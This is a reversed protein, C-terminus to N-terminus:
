PSAELYSALARAFTPNDRLNGIAHNCPGCILGRICQGCSRKGPCCSHRHDVHLVKGPRPAELCILCVGHQKALLDSYTTPGFGYKQKLHFARQLVAHCQKCVAEVGHRGSYKKYFSQLPKKTLCLNCKKM